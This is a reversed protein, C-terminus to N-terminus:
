HKVVVFTRYSTKTSWVRLHYLAPALKVLDLSFKGEKAEKEAAYVQAGQNNILELYVKENNDFDGEVFLLSTSPNPYISLKKQNSDDLSLETLEFEATDSNQCDNTAILMVTYFLGPVAYIHTVSAGANSTNGDGFDWLFSSAGTSSSADFQVTMGAPSSSIIDFFYGAVPQSCSEVTDVVSLSSGCLTQVTLSVIYSGPTVYGHTVTRGTDTAGDGFDWLYFVGPLVTTNLASFTVGSTARAYSFNALVTDCILAEIISTDKQGCDDTVILQVDYRGPTSYQHNGSALSSTNGDGFDWEYNLFIGTSGNADYSLTFNSVSQNQQVAPIPCVQPNDVRVDDIAIDALGNGPNETNRWAIFIFAVTSGSYQSLPVTVKEWQNLGSGSSNYITGFWFGNVVIQISFSYIDSGFQHKYFTLEPNSLTDLDISPSILKARDDNYNTSEAYVYQGNGTTHDSTPGSPLSSTQGTGPGWFYQTVGNSRIESPYVNWNTDLVGGLNGVGSGPVFNLSDFNEYFPATYQAAPQARLLAEIGFFLIFFLLIRTNMDGLVSTKMIINALNRKFHTFISKRNNFQIM